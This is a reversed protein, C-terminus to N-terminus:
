PNLNPWVISFGSGTAALAVDEDIVSNFFLQEGPQAEVGATLYCTAQKGRSYVLAGTSVDGLIRSITLIRLAPGGGVEPNEAASGYLLGREPVTFSWAYISREPRYVRRAYDGFPIEGQYETPANDAQLRCYNLAGSLDSLAVHEQATLVVSAGAQLRGMVHSLVEQHHRRISAEFRDSM